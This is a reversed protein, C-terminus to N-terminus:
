QDYAFTIPKAAELVALYRRCELQAAEVNLNRYNGCERAAAGFM